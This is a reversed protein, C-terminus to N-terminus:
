HRRLVSVVRDREAEIWTEVADQIHQALEQHLRGFQPEDVLFHRALKECEGDYSYKRATM